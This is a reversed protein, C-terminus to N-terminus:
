YKSPLNRKRPRPATTEDAPRGLPPWAPRPKVLPPATANFEARKRAKRLRQWERGKGIETYHKHRAMECVRCIRRNRKNPYLNDGSLEHGRPCHTRLQKALRKKKACDQVNWTHTECRLHAPNCCRPNDCTHCIVYGAPIPGVRLMYALRHVGHRRGQYSMTGYGNNRNHQSRAGSVFGQFELCGNPAAKCKSLLRSWAESVEPNSTLSDAM